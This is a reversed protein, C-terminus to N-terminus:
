VVFLEECMSALPARMLDPGCWFACYADGTASYVNCHEVVEALFEHLHDLGDLFGDKRADWALPLEESPIRHGVDVSASRSRSLMNGLSIISIKAANEQNDLVVLLGAGYLNHTKFTDSSELATRLAELEDLVEELMKTNVNARILLGRLVSTSKSRVGLPLIETGIRIGELCFGHSSTSTTANILTHLRAKSMQVWVFLILLVIMRPALVPTSDFVALSFLSIAQEESRESDTM